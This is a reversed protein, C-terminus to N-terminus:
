DRENKEGRHVEVYDNFEIEGDYVVGKLPKHSVFLITKDSMHPKFMAWLNGFTTSDVASFSEDFILLEFESMRLLLRAFAILQREGGSLSNFDVKEHLRQCISSPFHYAHCLEIIEQDSVPQNLRINNVITDSFIVPVAQSYWITEVYGEQQRVLHSLFTSKGIGVTGKLHYIKNKDLRIQKKLYSSGYFGREIEFYERKLLLSPSSPSQEKEHNLLAELPKSQISVSSFKISLQILLTFAPLMWISVQYISVLSGVNDRGILYSGFCFILVVMSSSVAKIVSMMVQELLNRKKSLTTLEKNVEDIERIRRITLIENYFLTIGLADIEQSLLQLEVRKGLRMEEIVILKKYCIYVIFYVLLFLIFLGIAIRIDEIVIFLMGLGITGCCWLLSGIDRYFFYSIEGVGKTIYYLYSRDDVHSFLSTNALKEIIDLNNDLVFRSLKLDLSILYNTLFPIIAVLGGLGILSIMDATPISYNIAYKIFLAPLLLMSARLLIILSIGIWKCVHNKLLCKAIKSM